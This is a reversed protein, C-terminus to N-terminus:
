ILGDYKQPNENIAARIEENREKEHKLRNMEVRLEKIDKNEEFNDWVDGKIDLEDLVWESPYYHPNRKIDNKEGGFNKKNPIYRKKNPIYELEDDSSIYEDKNISGISIHDDISSDSDIKSELLDINLELEESPTLNKNVYKKNAFEKDPKISRFSLLTKFVIRLLDSLVIKNKGWPISNSNNIKINQEILEEIRKHLCNTMELNYSEMKKKTLVAIFLTKLIKILYSVFVDGKFMEPPLLLFKLYNFVNKLIDINIDDIRSDMVVGQNYNLVGPQAFFFAKLRIFDKWTDLFIEESPDLIIKFEPNESTGYEPVYIETSYSLGSKVKELIRVGQNRRNYFKGFILKAEIKSEVIYIKLFEDM